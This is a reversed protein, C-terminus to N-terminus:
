FQDQLVIFHIQPNSEDAESYVDTAPSKHLHYFVAPDMFHFKNTLQSVILKQLFVRQKVFM